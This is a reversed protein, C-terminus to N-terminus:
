GNTVGKAARFWRVGLARKSVGRVGSRGNDERRSPARRTAWLRSWQTDEQGSLARMATTRIGPWRVSNQINLVKRSAQLM